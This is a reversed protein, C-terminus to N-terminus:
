LSIKDGIRLDKMRALGGNIELVYLSKVDPEFVECEKEICPLANELIFVVKNDSNIWIIDLPIFTNKMWFGHRGEDEFIFLMGEDDRLDVRYMLGRARERASDAVEVIFCEGKEIFCVQRGLEGMNFWTLAIVAVVLILGIVLIKNIKM